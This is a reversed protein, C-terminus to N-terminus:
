DNMAINYKYYQKINKSFAQQSADGILMMM